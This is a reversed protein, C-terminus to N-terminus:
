EYSKIDFDISDWGDNRRLMLSNVIVTEQEDKVVSWVNNDKIVEPFVVIADGIKILKDLDAETIKQINLIYKLDETGDNTDATVRAKNIDEMMIRSTKAGSKIYSSPTFVVRVTVINEETLPNRLILLRDSLGKIALWQYFSGLIYPREGLSFKKEGVGNYLNEIITDYLITRGEKDAKDQYIIRFGNNLRKIISTPFLKPESKTSQISSINSIYASLLYNLGSILVFLIVLGVIIVTVWKQSM